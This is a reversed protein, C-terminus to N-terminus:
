EDRTLRELAKRLTPDVQAATRFDTRAAERDGQHLKVMGRAVYARGNYPEIALARAALDGAEAIRGGETRLGALVILADACEPDLKLGAKCDEEAGAHDRMVARLGARTSFSFPNDSFRQVLIEADQLALAYRRMQQHIKVRNLYLDWRDPARALAANLDEIGREPEGRAGHVIARNVYAQVLGPDRELANNFASLAEDFDGKGLECLGMMNWWPARAPNYKLARDYDARARDWERLEYYTEAREAYALIYGPRLRLVLDCREIAERPRRLERLAGAGLLHIEATAPDTRDAEDCIRLTEEWRQEAFALSAKAFVVEWGSGGSRSAVQLDELAKRKLEDVAAGTRKGERYQGLLLVGRGYRASFLDPQSELAATFHRIAEGTQMTLALVRGMMAHAAPHRPDLLLAERLLAVSRGAAQRVQAIGAGEAYQVAEARALAGSASDLLASMKKQSQAAKAQRFALFASFGALATLLVTLVAAMRNRAVLRRVQYAVSPRRALVPQGDLLRQIDQAMAGASSYRRHPDRMMATQAITEVDRGVSPTWRRLPLPDGESANRMVELVSDGGYPPRGSLVAYLTAGLAYVDSLATAPDGKLCEPAMFAPTGTVVDTQTITSGGRSLRALGFDTIRPRGDRGMLINGPKLDRHIVGQDHAAQVAEAIACFLELTERMPLRVVELSPGHVYEMVIFPQDRHMGIEHVTVICPHTLRAAMQAERQLRQRHKEDDVRLFKIACFRKLEPHWARYVRGAGGAGIEALLLYSGVRRDPDREAQRIEEAFEEGSEGVKLEGALKKFLGLLKEDTTM